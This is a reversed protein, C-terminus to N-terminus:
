RIGGQPGIKGGNIVLLCKERWGGIRNQDIILGSEIELKLFFYIFQFSIEKKGLCITIVTDGMESTGKLM